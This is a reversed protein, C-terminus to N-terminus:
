FNIIKLFVDAKLSAGGVLAGDVDKQEMITTINEPKVSGGYLVSTSKAIDKNLRKGLVERIYEHAEQAQEPTATRGTGIAWVPEYAIITQGFGPTTIDTLGLRLQRELVELTKGAEREELTEGICMIPVLGEELAAKMKRNVWEDTDHFYQRRESHGIIVHTCGVDKLMGPAIEGTYAGNKEWHMNQAGLLIDSGSIVRAVAALATYPPAILVRVDPRRKGQKIEGALAEAEAMTKYMKWNGAILPVREGAM